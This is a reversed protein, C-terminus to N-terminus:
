AAVAARPEHILKALKGGFAEFFRHAYGDDMTVYAYAALGTADRPRGGGKESQQTSVGCPVRAPPYFDPAIGLTRLVKLLSELYAVVLKLKTGVLRADSSSM